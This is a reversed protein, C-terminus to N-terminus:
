KFIQNSHIFNGALFSMSNKKEDKNAQCIFKFGFLVQLFFGSTNCNQSAPDIVSDQYSSSRFNWSFLHPDSFTYMILIGDPRHVAM